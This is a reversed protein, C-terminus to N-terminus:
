KTQEEINRLIAAPTTAKRSDIIQQRYNATAKRLGENDGADGLRFGAQLGAIYQRDCMEALDAAPAPHEYLPVVYYDDNGKALGESKLWSGFQGNDFRKVGYGAPKQKALEALKAELDNAEKALGARQQRLESNERELARFAKAIALITAPDAMQMFRCVNAPVDGDTTQVITRGGRGTIYGRSHLTTRSYVWEEGGLQEALAALENLKEM